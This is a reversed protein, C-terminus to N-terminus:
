HRVLEKSNGKGICNRISLFQLQTAINTTYELQLLLSRLTLIKPPSTFLRKMFTHKQMEKESSNLASSVQNRETNGINSTRPLTTSCVGKVSHMYIVAFKAIASRLLNALGALNLYGMKMKKTKAKGSINGGSLKTTALRKTM